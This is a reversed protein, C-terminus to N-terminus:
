KPQCRIKYLNRQRPFLSCIFLTCQSDMWCGPGLLSHPFHSLLLLESTVALFTCFATSPICASAWDRAQVGAMRKSCLCGCGAGGLVM